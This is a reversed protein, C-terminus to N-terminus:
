APASGTETLLRSGAVSIAARLQDMFAERSLGPPIPEQIEFVARGSRRPLGSGPWFLGTNLAVPVCPLDLARYMAAVGPKLDCPAGVAQRTGEPFIVIPRGAEAAKRAAALMSKMTKMGGDRDIPIMGARQCYYGFVPAKLLEQKLVFAPDPLFFFPAITDYTSQHQIAIICPGPPLRNMGRIETEVGMIWRLSIKQLSAWVVIVRAALRRSLFAFPLGGIGVLAVGAYFPVAYVLSRLIM